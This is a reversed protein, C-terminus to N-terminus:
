INSTVDPVTTMYLSYIFLHAQNNPDMYTQEIELDIGGAGFQGM